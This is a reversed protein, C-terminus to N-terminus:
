SKKAMFLSDLFIIGPTLDDRLHDPPPPAYAIGYSSGQTRQLIAISPHIISQPSSSSSPPQNHNIIPLEQNAIIVVVGVVVVVVLITPKDRKKRKIQQDDKIIPVRVPIASPILRGLFLLHIRVSLYYLRGGMIRVNICVASYDM